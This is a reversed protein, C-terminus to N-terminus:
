RREWKHLFLYCASFQNNIIVQNITDSHGLSAFTSINRFLPAEPIMDCPQRDDKQNSKSTRQEKKRGDRPLVRPYEQSFDKPDGTSFM